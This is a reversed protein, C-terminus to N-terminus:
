PRGSLRSAIFRGASDLAAEEAIGRQVSAAEEPAQAESRLSSEPRPGAPPTRGLGADGQGAAGCAARSPSGEVKVTQPGPGQLESLSPPAQPGTQDTGAASPGRGCRPRGDRGEAERSEAVARRRVSAPCAWKDLGRLDAAHALKGHSGSCVAVSGPAEFLM